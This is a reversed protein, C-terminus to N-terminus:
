RFIEYSGMEMAVISHTETAPPEETRVSWFESGGGFSMSCSEGGNKRLLCEMEEGGNDGKRDSEWSNKDLRRLLRGLEEAVEKMVPRKIGSSSLCRRAVEAFAEIEEMEGERAVVFNVIRGLNMDGVSSLFYQVLNVKEETRTSSGSYPKRGTLLEVMVVGFSYVDSMPTLNGTVLYEPDLYGLTGQIKDFMATAQDPYILVSAGFDAVKARFGEDLLINTSKIDGHIIPPNALSHLYDLAQAIETAIRLRNKWTSMLDSRKRHVHDFLTGNPIFEYVLLPLKTELCLGVVKVVHIHNVQSVITIEHEFEQNITQAKDISGKPKKIAVVTNDPLIGKYVRGFGGEGLFHTADFNKTAKSLEFERFIRVRQHKLLMGGNLLFNKERKRRRYIIFALLGITVLLIVGGTVAVIATVSSVQCAVKGDGRMGVPCSCTYNGKTNKCRGHCPYNEPEECENIDQCGLYPNGRFGPKCLCRYGNGNESYVCDSDERCAYSSPANLRAEECHKEEVVWEIATSLNSPNRDPFEALDLGGFDFFRDDGLFAFVCPNSEWIDSQNSRPREVTFDLTKLGQPILSQCCGIGSCVSSSAAASIRRSVNAASVGNCFSICASGFNGPADTMIAMADCGFVTLKNHADSFRFPGEGLSISQNFYNDEMLGNEDYCSYAAYMISSLTGEELSINTVPINGFLLEHPPAATTVTSTCNLLFADSFACKPDGIGFPYPVTINGCKDSCDGHIANPYTTSLSTVGSLLLLLITANM